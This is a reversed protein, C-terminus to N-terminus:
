LDVSVAWFNTFSNNNLKLCSSNKIFSSLLGKAARFAVYTDLNQSSGEENRGLKMAKLVLSYSDMLFNLRYV